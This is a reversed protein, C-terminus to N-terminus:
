APIERGKYNDRYHEIVRACGEEISRVVNEYGGVIYAVWPSVRAGPEVFAIIYKRENWAEWSEMGTGWGPETYNGFVVQSSRIDALDGEVVVAEDEIEKGRFDRAAIPDFLEINSYGSLLMKVRERFADDMHPGTLYVKM